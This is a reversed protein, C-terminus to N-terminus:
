PVARCPWSLPMSPLTTGSTCASRPPFVSSLAHGAERSRDGRSSRDKLLCVGLSGLVGPVQQAARRPPPSYSLGLFPGPIATGGGPDTLGPGCAGPLLAWPGHLASRLCGDQSSAFSPVGPATGHCVKAVQIWFEVVRARDQATMSPTRLCTTTVLRVMAEFQRMVNYITPVMHEIIGRQPRHWLYIECESYLVHTFLEQPHSAPTMWSHGQALCDGNLAPAWAAPPTAMQAKSRMWQPVSFQICLITPFLPGRSAPM